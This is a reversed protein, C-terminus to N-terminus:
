SRGSPGSSRALAEQRAELERTQDTMAGELGASLRDLRAVVLYHLGVAVGVFAYDFLRVSQILQAAHLLDNIALLVYVGFGALIARRERDPLARARWVTAACYAVVAFLCPVLASM